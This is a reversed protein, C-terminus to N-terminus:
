RAQLAAQERRLRDWSPSAVVPGRYGVLRLLQQQSCENDRLCPQPHQSIAHETMTSGGAPNPAITLDLEVADGNLNGRVDNNGTGYTV